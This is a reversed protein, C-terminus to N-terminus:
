ELYLDQLKVMEEKSIGLAEVVFNEITGYNAKAEAFFAGLYEARVMSLVKFVEIQEPTLTMGPPLGGALKSASIQGYNSLLYDEMITAEDVGLISLILASGVGVRDKGATCHQVLPVREELLLKLLNHYAKHAGKNTAFFKNIAALGAMANEKTDTNITLIDTVGAEELPRIHLYEVGEVERDPGRLVEDESRYDVVTKLQIEKIMEVGADSLGDHAASRLLVGWKVCKGDKGEYGGLDRFNAVGDVSITREAVTQVGQDTVFFFYSRNNKQVINTQYAGKALDVEAVYQTDTTYKPEQGQYLKAKGQMSEWSLLIGEETASAKLQNLLKM